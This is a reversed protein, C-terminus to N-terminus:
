DEDPLIEGDLSLIPTLIDDVSGIKDFDQATLEEVTGLVRVKPAEYKEAM